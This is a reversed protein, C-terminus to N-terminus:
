YIGGERPRKKLSGGSRGLGGGPHRVQSLNGPHLAVGVLDVSFALSWLKELLVEQQKEKSYKLPRLAAKPPSATGYKFVPFGNGVGVGEGPPHIRDEGREEAPPLPAFPPLL